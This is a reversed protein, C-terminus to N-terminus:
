VGIKHFPSNFPVKADALSDAFTQLFRKYEVSNLGGRRLVFAPHRLLVMITEPGILDKSFYKKPENGLLAILKPQCLDVIERLHPSCAAAESRSPQRIEGEDTLPICCVINTICYSTVGLQQIATSLLQGSRGIFPKGLKDETKGPAEGVLLVEAPMSGRYLVHHNANLHLPCKQCSNWKRIYSVKNM